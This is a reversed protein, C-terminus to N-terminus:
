MRFACIFALCLLCIIILMTLLFKFGGKGNAMNMEIDTCHKEPNDPDFYIKVKADEKKWIAGSVLGHGTYKEGGVYYEYDAVTSYEYRNGNSSSAVYDRERIRNKQSIVADTTATMRNMGRNKMARKKGGIIVFVFLTGLMVVIGLVVLGLILTENM